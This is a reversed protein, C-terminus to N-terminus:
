QYKIKYETKLIKQFRPLDSLRDYIPNISLNSKHLGSPISLLYEMKDLALDYNGTLIYIEMLDQEKIVGQWADLKMPKLEVAKKGCNVAEQKNGILAYCKGITALYRDDNPDEKIRQKLHILASDAHIKSLDINGKLYHIFAIRYTKPEYMFQTTYQVTDKKIFEILKDYQNLYFDIEYQFDEERLGSEKLAIKVDQSKHLFANFIHRNFNKYDTILSLGQKACDIQNDYQHLLQYTSALDNIAQANYPDLQIGIKAENLSEQWKGQRRLIYSSLTYLDAMNPSETKLRGIVKLANDYDRNVFYYFYAQAIKPETLKPNLDIAKKIDDRAKLDSGQWGKNKNWWISLYSRARKAYAEAFLPDEQIAKTYMDVALLSNSNNGKLYYDYAVQNRTPPTTQILSTEKFTLTVKLARAINQAVESQIFFIDSLSRDYIQSWLHTDTKADILQVTIRVNNGIKQISGELITSVGLEQAIEKLPLQTNKYRMISTRSIVKLEGMKFLHDLIADVMGDSFYEQEPDNSLNNFPLVAISKDLQRSSKTLAPIIFYGAILFALLILFGVILRTKLKKQSVPETKTKEKLSEEQQFNHKKLATIIEKIANAVKNIQDRYYTKNINDQPHEENVRLPRNVGASKYIFEISRLYGGIENELLAKDEPELDHIKVPLIRSSLNGSTLTIDRGFRDKKALKNFACFEHNWAYSNSDCYTQSVIPIFVLCKLKKILSEDVIHTELLGDKPNEDFYISIEEKFTSELETKLANVFESVWKEGKNDKQRYSIFIDYEYGPILSAM